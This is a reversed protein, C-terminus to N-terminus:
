VEGGHEGAVEEAVFGLLHALTQELAIRVRRREVGPQPEVGFPARSEDLHLVELALAVLRAAGDPLDLLASAVGGLLDRRHAPELRTDLLQLRAELRDLRLQQRDLLSKRVQRVFADRDALVLAGVADLPRYPDGTLEVELGLGVPVEARREADEVELATGLEGAGAEGDVEAGAGQKLAGKDIEHQVE